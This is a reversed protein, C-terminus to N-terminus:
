FAAGCSPCKGSIEPYVTKCFQCRVMVQHIVQPPPAEASQQIVNVVVPPSAQRPGASSMEAQIAGMWGEPDPVTFEHRPIGAVHAQDVLVILKKLVAGEVRVSQIAFTPITTVIRFKKSVIGDMRSFTLSGSGVTLTGSTGRYKCASSYTM